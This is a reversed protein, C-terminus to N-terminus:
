KEFGDSEPKKRTRLMHVLFMKSLDSIAYIRFEQNQRPLLLLGVMMGGEVESFSLKPGNVALHAQVERPEFDCCYDLTKTDRPILNAQKLSGALISTLILSFPMPISTNWHRKEEGNSCLTHM